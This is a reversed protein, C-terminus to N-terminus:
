SESREAKHDEHLFREFLETQIFGYRAKDLPTVIEEALAKAVLDERQVVVFRGTVAVGDQVEPLARSPNAPAVEMLTIGGRMEERCTPCPKNNVAVRPVPQGDMPQVLMTM